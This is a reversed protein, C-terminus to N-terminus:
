NPLSHGQSDIDPYVNNVVTNTDRNFTICCTSQIGDIEFLKKRNTRNATVDHEFVVMNMKAEDDDKSGNVEEVNEKIAIEVDTRGLLDRKRKAIKTM